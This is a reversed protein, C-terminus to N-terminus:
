KCARPNDRQRRGQPPPVSPSPLRTDVSLLSPRLTKRPEFFHKV